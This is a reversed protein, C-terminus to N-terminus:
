KNDTSPTRGAEGICYIGIMAPAYRRIDWAAADPLQDFDFRRDAEVAVLSGAPAADLVGGLLSRLAAARQEYLDYPPSCFVSWPHPPLRPPGEFVHFTDAVIVESCTEVGLTAINKSLVAATPHHREVFTAGIAGRSLAELGLAGTGAFLDVAHTGVIAPGLLNFLAERTRDKMPRVTPQGGYAIKRGRFRGGIIRLTGARVTASRGRAPTSRQSKTPTNRSRKAAM